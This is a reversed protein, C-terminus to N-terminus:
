SLKQEYLFMECYIINRNGSNKLNHMTSGRIIAITHNSEVLSAGAPGNSCFEATVNARGKECIVVLWDPAMQPLMEQRLANQM